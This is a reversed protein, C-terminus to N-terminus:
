RCVIICFSPTLDKASATETASRAPISVGCAEGSTLFAGYDDGCSRGSGAQLANLQTKGGPVTASWRAQHQTAGLDLAKVAIASDPPM